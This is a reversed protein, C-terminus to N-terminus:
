HMTKNGPKFFKSADAPTSAVDLGSIPNLNEDLEAETIVAQDLIEIWGFETFITMTALRLYEVIETYDREAAEADASEFELEEGDETLVADSDMTLGIDLPDDFEDEDGDEAYDDADVSAQAIAALDNLAENVNEPLSRDLRLQNSEVKEDASMDMGSLEEAALPELKQLYVQAEAFGGLFGKCWHGLCETRQEITEDDDPLFPQFALDEHSLISLQEHAMGGLVAEALEGFHGIIHESAGMVALGFQSWRASSLRMAGCLGGIYAGHLEAPSFRSDVTLLWDALEDFNEPPPTDRYNM